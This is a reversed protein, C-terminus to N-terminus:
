PPNLPIEEPSNLPIEEWIRQCVGEFNNMIEDNTFRLLKLRYGELVRSRECDYAKGADTFHSEGDVEIVLKLAACYFDVIFQDIPRQRLVRLPFTRLGDQWLKKEALTPNQRLAKARAILKPNYTLHFNTTNLKHMLRSQGNEGLSSGSVCMKTKTAFHQEIGGNVGVARDPHGFGGPLPSVTTRGTREVGNTISTRDGTM